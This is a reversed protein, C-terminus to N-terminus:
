ASIKTARVHYGVCLTSRSVDTKQKSLYYLFAPLLMTKAILGHTYATRGVELALWSYYDGVPVLEEIVFGNEILFKEYWRDSFGSYFFYPDMHRLCNSPATLLLTGGPKMLRSFEKLTEAPYPIHEFVETCLIADFTQDQEDISWINGTYDLPGYQYADRNGENGLMQKEDITYQGFDQAKYVLHDCTNRYVQDGCGADLVMASDPLLRLQERVWKHREFQNDLKEILGTKWALKKFIERM